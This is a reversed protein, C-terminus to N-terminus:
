NEKDEKTPAPPEYDGLGGFIDDDDEQDGEQSAARKNNSPEDSRNTKEKDKKNSRQVFKPLAHEIKQILELDLHQAQNEFQDTPHTVERPVEWSRKINSPRDDLTLVLRSRQLYKAANGATITQPQPRFDEVQHLLKQVYEVMINDNVREEMDDNSTSVFDQLIKTAEQLKPITQFVVAFKKKEKPDEKKETSTEFATQRQLFEKRLQRALSLNLEAKRPHETTATTGTNAANKGASLRGDRREKARDRYLEALEELREEEEQKSNDIDNKRKSRQQEDDGEEDSSDGGKRRRKKSRKWDDEVAKRAIEKTNVTARKRVLDAFAQNNM